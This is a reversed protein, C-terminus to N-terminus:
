FKWKLDAGVQQGKYNGNQQLQYNLGMEMGSRHYYNLSFAPAFLLRNKKYTHTVFSDGVSLFYASYDQNSLQFLAIESLTFTPVLVAKKLEIVVAGEVHGM